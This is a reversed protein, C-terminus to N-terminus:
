PMGSATYRGTGTFFRVKRGQSCAAFGLATGLHTKGTGSKGILLINERRDIYEGQMSERVLRLLYVPYDTREQACVQAEGPRHNLPVFVERLRCRLERVADKVVTYGGAYGEGQLVEFIRKATHRQKKPLEGDEKLIQEVRSRYPGLKPSQRDKRMRYDPPEPHKLIKELTRWHLRRACSREGASVRM